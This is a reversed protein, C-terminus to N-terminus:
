SSNYCMSLLCRQEAIWFFNESLVSSFICLSLHRYILYVNVKGRASSEVSFLTCGSVHSRLATQLILFFLSMYNMSNYCWLLIYKKVFFLAFQNMLMFVKTIVVVSHGALLWFFGFTEQFDVLGHQRFLFLSVRQFHIYTWIEIIFVLKAFLVVCVALVSEVM